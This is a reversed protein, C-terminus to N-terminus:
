KPGRGSVGRPLTWMRRKVSRKMRRALVDEREAAWNVTAPVVSMRRFSYMGEPPSRNCEQGVVSLVKGGRKRVDDVVAKTDVLYDDAGVVGAGIAADLADVM